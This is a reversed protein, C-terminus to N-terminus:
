RREEGHSRQQHDLHIFRLKITVVLVSRRYEEMELVTADAEMDEDDSLVDRGVYKNRDKGFMKWIENKVANHSSAEPLARRKAPPPSPSPSNSFTLSHSRKRSSADSRTGSSTKATVKSPGSLVRSGSPVSTRKAKLSPSLKSTSVNKTGAASSKSLGTKTKAAAAGAVGPIPASTAGNAEVVTFSFVNALWQCATHESNSSIPTNAGSSPTSPLALKKPPEKKKPGGFWDNFERADDGDLVKAERAKARDQLIEDITRTDRKVVNLKTLTNPIASIRAKISQASAPSGSNFSQPSTIDIAGGPLKGDAKRSSSHSSRKGPNLSRRLEAEEKRKRKEERTLALAASGEDDSDRRRGDDRSHTNSSPWKPLSTSKAKKPGYRLANREEDERRKRERERAAEEQERRLKLEEQRKAEEFYKLRLANEREREKKEQEEQQKRKLEEKRQRQILASQVSDQSEKTQSRSLAMLAAFGSMAAFRFSSFCLSFPVFRFLLINTLHSTL